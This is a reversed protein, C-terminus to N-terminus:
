PDEIQCATRHQTLRKSPQRHTYLVRRQPLERDSPLLAMSSIALFEPLPRGRRVPITWCRISLVPSGSVTARNRRSLTLVLYISPFPGSFCCVSTPIPMKFGGRMSRLFLTLVNSAPISVAYPKGMTPFSTKRLGTDNWHAESCFM